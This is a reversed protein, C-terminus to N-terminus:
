AGNGEIRPLFLACQDAFAKPSVAGRPCRKFKKLWRVCDDACVPRTKDVPIGRLRNERELETTM